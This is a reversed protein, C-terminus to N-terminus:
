GKKEAYHPRLYMPIAPEANGAALKREVIPLADALDYPKHGVTRAYKMQEIEVEDITMVRPAVDHAGVFFDGRGSECAVFADPTKELYIECANVPVVPINLGISLGKAYAIGLRIGTFSGPGVVVGIASIDRFIASNEALFKEVEAPLSLSQKETQIFKTKILHSGTVGARAAPPPERNQPGPPPNLLVINGNEDVRMNELSENFRKLKEEFTNNTLIDLVIELCGNLNKNIDWNWFRVINFGFQQLYETRISDNKKNEYHQSGDIEVILKKEYCIFDAIYKNDIQRQRRFIFGGLKKNRVAQWFKNEESTPDTRMNKAFTRIYPKYEQHHPQNQYKSKISGMGGVRSVLADGGAAPAPPSDTLPINEGFALGIGSLSTDIILIM